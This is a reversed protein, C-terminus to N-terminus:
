SSKIGRKGDYAVDLGITFGALDGQVSKQFGVMEPGMQAVMRKNSCCQLSGVPRGAEM